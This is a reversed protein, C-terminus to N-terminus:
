AAEGTGQETEGGGGGVVASRQQWRRQRVIAYLAVLVLVADGILILRLRSDFGGGIWWRPYHNAELARQVGAMGGVVAAAVAWEARRWARLVGAAVVAVAVAAPPGVDAPHQYTGQWYWDLFGVIAAGAALTAFWQRVRPAPGMEKGGTAILAAAVILPPVAALATYGGSVQSGALVLLVWGLMQVLRRRGLLLAAFAGPWLLGAVQLLVMQAFSHHHGDLDSYNIDSTYIGWNWRLGLIQTIAGLFSLYLTGLLAVARMLPRAASASPAVEASLGSRVRVGHTALSFVEGLKPWRRRAPASDMLVTLMEEGRDARYARPLLTLLRRYRRELVVAADGPGDPVGPAGSGGASASASLGASWGASAGTPGADSGAVDAYDSGAEAGDGFESGAGAGDGAVGAGSM